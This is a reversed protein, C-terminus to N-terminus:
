HAIAKLWLLGHATTGDTVAMWDSRLYWLRAAAAYKRKGTEHKGGKHWVYFFSARHRSCEGHGRCVVTSPLVTATFGGRGSGQWAERLIPRHLGNTGNNWVINMAKLAMNLKAQDSTTKRLVQSMAEWYQEPLCSLMCPYILMLMCSYVYQMFQMVPETFLSDLTVEHSVTALYHSVM